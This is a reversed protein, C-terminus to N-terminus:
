TKYMKHVRRMHNGHSSKSACVEGCVACEFRAGAESSHQERVHRALSSHHYWGGCEGCQKKSGPVNDTTLQLDIYKQISKILM